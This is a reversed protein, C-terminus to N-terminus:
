GDGGVEQADLAQMAQQLPRLETLWLYRWRPTYHCVAHGSGDMPGHAVLADPDIDRIACLARGAAEGDAM